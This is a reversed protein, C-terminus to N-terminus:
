GEMRDFSFRALACPHITRPLQGAVREVGQQDRGRDGADNYLEGASVSQRQKSQRVYRRRPERVPRKCAAGLFDVLDKGIRQDDKGSQMGCGRKHMM